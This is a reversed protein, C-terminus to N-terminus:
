GQAETEEHTTDPPDGPRGWTGHFLAAPHLNRVGSFTAPIACALQGSTTQLPLVPPSWSQSSAPYCLEPIPWILSPGSSAKLPAPPTCPLSHKRPKAAQLLQRRGFHRRSCSCRSLRASRLGAPLPADRGGPGPCRCGALDHSSLAGLPEAALSGM